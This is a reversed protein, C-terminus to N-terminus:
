IPSAAVGIERSLISSFSRAHASFAYVTQAGSATVYRILDSFGAHSSLPIGYGVAWGTCQVAASSARHKSLSIVAVSREPPMSPCIIYNGLHEGYKEYLRNHDGISKEVFPELKAALSLLATLEQGTGLPRSALHLGGRKETAEKALRLVQRYIESRPPFVYKPHGYTADIILIDAKLIPAPRLIIRQEINFDGTYIIREKADIMLQLGGLVHGADFVELRTGAVEVTSGPEVPIVNDLRGRPDILERTARSMVKPVRSLVRLPRLRYHDSHAHSIFIVDPKERPLSTPDVLIRRANFEIVIGGDRYVSVSM